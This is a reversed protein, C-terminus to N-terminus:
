YSFFLGWGYITLLPLCILKNVLRDPCTPIQKRDRVISLVYEYTYGLFSFVIFYVFLELSM